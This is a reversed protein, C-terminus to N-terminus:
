LPGGIPQVVIEEVMVSAPAKCIAIISAAVNEPTMMRAAHRSRIVEPWIETDTAGPHVTVVRVGSKRVESRMCDTMWKLGGKTAAYVSSNPFVQRAAMSNIMVITGGGREIMSPLVARSCLFPGRLNVATLADFEEISTDLFSKFVSVGANNILIDIPSCLGAIRATVAAVENADSVDCPIARVGSGIAAAVANIRKASRGSLVVQAGEAAFAEAVARGIGSGGGTVWVTKGRLSTVSNEPAM